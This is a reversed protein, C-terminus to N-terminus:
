GPEIAVRFKDGVHRVCEVCDADTASNQKLAHHMSVWMFDSNRMNQLMPSARVCPLPHRVCFERLKPEWTGGYRSSLYAVTAEVASWSSLTDTLAFWDPFVEVVGKTRRLEARSAEIESARAARHGNALRTQFQRAVIGSLEVPAIRRGRTKCVRNDNGQRERVIHALRARQVDSAISAVDDDDDSSVYTPLRSRRALEDDTWESRM